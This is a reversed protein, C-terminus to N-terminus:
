QGDFTPRNAKGPPMGLVVAVAATTCPAALALGGVNNDVQGRDLKRSVRVKYTYCFKRCCGGGGRTYVSHNFFVLDVFLVSFRLLIVHFHCFFFYYYVHKSSAAAAATSRIRDIEDLLM